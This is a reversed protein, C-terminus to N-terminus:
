LQCPEFYSTTLLSHRTLIAVQSASLELRLTMNVLSAYEEKEKTFRLNHRKIFICDAQLLMKPIQIKGGIAWHSRTSQATLNGGIPAFCFHAQIYVFMSFCTFSPVTTMVLTMEVLWCSACVKESCIKKIGSVYNCARRGKGMAGGSQGPSRAWLSLNFNLNARLNASILRQVVPGLLIQM